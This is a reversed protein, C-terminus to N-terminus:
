KISVSLKYSANGRTGGVIIKYNGARAVNGTWDTADDGEGAGQLFKGGADKVQFVANDEPSTIKVTIKQGKKAAVTYTDSDGRVISGATTASHKGKAFRIRKKVGDASVSLSGFALACVLLSITGFIKLKM